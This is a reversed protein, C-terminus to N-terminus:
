QMNDVAMGGPMAFAAPLGAQPPPGRLAASACDHAATAARRWQQTLRAAVDRLQPDQHHSLMAVPRCIRTLELLRLSISTQCLKHLIGLAQTAALQAAAPGDYKGQAVFMLQEACARVDEVLQEPPTQTVWDLLDPDGSFVARVEAGAALVAASM